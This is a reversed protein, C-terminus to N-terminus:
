RELTSGARRVLAATDPGLRFAREFDALRYSPDTQRIVAGIDQAERARGALALCIMAIVRIHIHANPRGASRLAWEAAEEHQGLRLLGLARAALMGFLLPDMPSLARAHDCSAIALQPDGSQALVFGLTYHGLAFNPSLEIAAHLERLADDQRDKLWLARGLAWHAAPDHEDVMLGSSAAAYAQEIAADRERWGLFADQFHTFSLGAQPRAFTPDLRIAAQFFHRAQENDERHFRVM